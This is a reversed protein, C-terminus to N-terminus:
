TDKECEEAADARTKHTEETLEPPSEVGGQGQAPELSGPM